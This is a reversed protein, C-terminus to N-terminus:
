SSGATGTASASRGNSVSQTMGPQHPHDRDPVARGGSPRSFTRNSCSRSIPRHLPSDRQGTARLAPPLWYSLHDAKATLPKHPLHVSLPTSRASCSGAVSPSVGPVRHDTPAAAAELLIEFPLFIARYQGSYHRRSDSQLGRPFNGRDYLRRRRHGATRAAVGLPRPIEIGQRLALRRGSIPTSTTTAAAEVAVILSRYPLFVEHAGVDPSASARPASRSRTVVSNLSVSLPYGPLATGRAGGVRDAFTLYDDTFTLVQIRDRGCGPVLM